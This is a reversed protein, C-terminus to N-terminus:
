FMLVDFSLNEFVEVFILPFFHWPFLWIVGTTGNASEGQYEKNEVDWGNLQLKCVKENAQVIKPLIQNPLKIYLRKRGKFHLITSQLRLVYGGKMVWIFYMRVFTFFNSPSPLSPSHSSSFMDGDGRTRFALVDFHVPCAPALQGAASPLASASAVACVQM